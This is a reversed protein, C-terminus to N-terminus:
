RLMNNRYAIPTEISDLDTRAAASSNGAQQGPREPVARHVHQVRKAFHGKIDPEREM